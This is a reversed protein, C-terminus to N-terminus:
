NKCIEKKNIAVNLSFTLIKIIIFDNWLSLFLGSSQLSILCFTEVFRFIKAIIKQKFVLNIEIRFGFNNVAEFFIM